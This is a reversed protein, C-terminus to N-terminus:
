QPQEAGLYAENIIPNLYYPIGSRQDTIGSVQCRAGM